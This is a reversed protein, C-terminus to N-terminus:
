AGAGGMVWVPGSLFLNHCVPGDLSRSRTPWLCTAPLLDFSSYGERGPTLTPGPAPFCAGCSESHARVTDVRQITSYLVALFIALYLNVSGASQMKQVKNDKKIQRSPEAAM